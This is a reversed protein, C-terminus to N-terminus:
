NLSYDSSTKRTETNACAPCKLTNALKHLPTKCKSCFARIVGFNNEKTSLETIFRTVELVKAKIIDGKKFADKMNRVYDNSVNFVMLTAPSPPCVKKEKGNTAELLSVVASKEKLLIVRGIIEDGQTLKEKSSFIKKVKAEYKEKTIEKEGVCTSRVNGKEDVFTNQGAEYEEETCLLNGPFIIENM